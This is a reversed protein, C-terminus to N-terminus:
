WQQDILVETIHARRSTISLICAAQNQTTYWRTVTILVFRLSLMFFSLMQMISNHLCAFLVLIM